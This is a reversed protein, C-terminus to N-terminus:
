LGLGFSNNMEYLNLLNSRIISSSRFLKWITDFLIINRTDVKMKNTGYKKNANNILLLYYKIIIVYGM